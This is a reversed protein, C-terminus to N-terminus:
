VYWSTVKIVCIPKLCVETALVEWEGDTWFRSRAPDQAIQHMIVPYKKNPDFNAPKMMWGNLEVGDTTSFSFFEKVPM